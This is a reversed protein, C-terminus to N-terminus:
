NSYESMKISEFSGSQGRLKSHRFGYFVYVFLGIVMWVFLRIVSNTDSTFILGVCFGAGSIPILYPGGPVKFPRQLDPRKIRLITVGICVLFFAFLTGISTMEGLINIPLLAALIACIIGIGM